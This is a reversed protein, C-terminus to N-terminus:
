GRRVKEEKGGRKRLIRGQGIGCVKKGVKTVKRHDLGGVGRNGLNGRGVKLMKKEASECRKEGVGAFSKIEDKRRREGL